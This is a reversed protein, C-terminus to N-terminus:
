HLPATLWREIYLRIGKCDTHQRLAKWILTHALTDVAGKIDFKVVWDYRWGRQRTVTRAQHASKGPRYGYSDKHFDPEVLPELALTVGTQAIRDAVTPIGLPRQGGDKKAMSGVKVPPPVYSGSSLRNWLKYLNDKLNDEFEEVTEDDGGAAGHTAKVRQYAEWGAHKSISVPKTAAM